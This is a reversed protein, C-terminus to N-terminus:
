LPVLMGAVADSLPVPTAAVWDIEAAGEFTDKPLTLTPPLLVCLMVKVFEPLELKVIEFMLTLPWSMWVEPMEVGIVKIAPWFVASPRLKEGLVESFTLPLTVTVVASPVVVAIETPPLPTCPASVMVGEETFKPLTDTPEFPECVIRKVLEPEAATVIECTLTAPLANPSLPTLKGIESAAPWDLLKLTCYEGFDAPAVEPLMEITLM